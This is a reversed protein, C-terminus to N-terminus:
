LWVAAATLLVATIVLGAPTSTAWLIVYIPITATTHLVGYFLRLSRAIPSNWHAAAKRHGAWVAQVSPPDLHLLSHGHAVKAYLAGIQGYAGIARSLAEGAPSLANDEPATVPQLPLSAPVSKARRRTEEESVAAPPGLAVAREPVARQLETM